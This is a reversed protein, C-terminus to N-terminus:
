ASGGAATSRLLENVAGQAGDANGGVGGRQANWPGGGHMPPATTDLFADRVGEDVKRRRPDDSLAGIWSYATERHADSTFGLADRKAADEDIGARCDRVILLAKSSTTERFWLGRSAVALEDPTREDYPSSM